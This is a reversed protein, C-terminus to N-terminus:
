SQQILDIREKEFRTIFEMHADIAGNIRARDILLERSLAADVEPNVINLYKEIYSQVAEAVELQHYIMLQNDANRIIKDLQNM